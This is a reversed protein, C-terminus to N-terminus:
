YYEFTVTQLIDASLSKAVPCNIAAEELIEKQADTFDLDEVRLNIVIESIRRPNDAMIKDISAFMDGVKFNNAKSKIGMLTMMCNGLANSVLDTPSFSEGTGHNDVPADTNIEVGSQLHKSVTRLNGKYSIESIKTM